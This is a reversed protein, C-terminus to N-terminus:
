EGQLRLGRWEPVGASNKICINVKHTGSGQVGTSYALSGFLETTCTPLSNYEYVKMKILGNVDLKAGPNTTGIGVNGGNNFYTNGSAPISFGDGDLNNNRLHVSTSGTNYGLYINPSYLYTTPVSAQIYFPLGTTGWKSISLYTGDSGIQTGLTSDGFKTYKADSLLISTVSPPSLDSGSLTWYSTGAVAATTQTTGDPFVIGKGSGDIKINGSAFISDTTPAFRLNGNTEYGISAYTTTGDDSQFRIASWDNSSKRQIYGYVGHTIIGNDGSIELRANTPVMGIGVNGSKLITFRETGGE